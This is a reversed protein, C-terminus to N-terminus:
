LKCFIDFAFVDYLALFFSPSKHTNGIKNWIHFKVQLKRDTTWLSKVQIVM